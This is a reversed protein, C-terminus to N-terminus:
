LNREQWWQASRFKLPREDLPIEGLGTKELLSFYEDRLDRLAKGCWPCFRITIASRGGDHIMLGYSDTVPDYEVLADPCDWREPHQACAAEVNSRLMECCHSKTFNASM